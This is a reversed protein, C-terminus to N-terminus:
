NCARDLRLEALRAPDCPQEAPGGTSDSEPELPRLQIKERFRKAEDDDPRRALLDDVSELAADYNRTRYLTVATNFIANTNAPDIKTAEAFYRLALDYMNLALYCIGIDNHAAFSLPKFNLYSNYTAIAERFRRQKKLARARGFQAPGYLPDLQLARDFLALAGADKRWADFLLGRQYWLLANNTFRNLAFQLTVDAAYYKGVNRFDVAVGGWRQVSTADVQLYSIAKTVIKDEIWLTPLLRGLEVIDPPIPM